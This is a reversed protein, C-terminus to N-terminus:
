EEDDPVPYAQQRRAQVRELLAKLTTADHQTDSDDLIGQLYIRDAMGELIAEQVESDQNAIFGHVTRLRLDTRKARVSERHNSSGRRFCLTALGVAAVSIGLRTLTLSTSSLDENLNFFHILLLVLPVGGVLLGACDWTWGAIAKNRANKQYDDAVVKRSLATVLNRSEDVMKKVEATGALAAKMATDVAMADGEIANTYLERSEEVKKNLDLKAADQWSRQKDALGTEFDQLQAQMVNISERLEDRQRELQTLANKASEEYQAAARGAAQAAGRPSVPPWSSTQDLVADVADAATRMYASYSEPNSAYQSLPAQVNNALSSRMGELMAASYRRPDEARHANLIELLWRVRSLSDAFDPQGVGPVDSLQDKMQDVLSWLPHTTFRTEWITSM